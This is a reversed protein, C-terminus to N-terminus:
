VVSKRDLGQEAALRYWKVAEAKDMSVGKGLFYCEGLRSQAEADGREAATRYRNVAETKDVASSATRFVDSSDTDHNRGPKDCVPCLHKQGLNMGCKPCVRGGCRREPEPETEPNDCVPCLHKQGLNMGCKPCTRANNSM